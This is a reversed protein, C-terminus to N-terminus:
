GEYSLCNTRIGFQKVVVPRLTEINQWKQHRRIARNAIHTEITPTQTRVDNNASHLAKLFTLPGPMAKSDAFGNNAGSLQSAPTHHRCVIGVGQFLIHADQPADDAFEAPHHRQIGSNHGPAENM